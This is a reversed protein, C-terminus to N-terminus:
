GQALEGHLRTAIERAGDDVAVVDVTTPVDRGLCARFAAAELCAAVARARDTQKVVFM